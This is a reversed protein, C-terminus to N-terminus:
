RLNDKPLVVLALSIDDGSGKDSSVNLWDELSNEIYGLGKENCLKFFDEGAKLFGSKDTFSNSYGDTSVLFMLPRDTKVQM